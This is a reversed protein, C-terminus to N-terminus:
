HSNEEGEDTTEFDVDIAPINALLQDAEKKLLEQNTVFVITHPKLGKLIDKLNDGDQLHLGNVEKYEKMYKLHAELDGRKWAKQAGNLIATEFIARKAEKLGDVPNGFLIMANKVDDYATSKGIGCIRELMEVTKKQTRHHTLILWAKEWRERISDEEPRLQLRSKGHYYKYIRDFTSDNTKNAERLSDAKHAVIPSINNKENEM